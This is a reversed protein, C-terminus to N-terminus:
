ETREGLVAELTMEKGERLIKLTVKDGPNYKM